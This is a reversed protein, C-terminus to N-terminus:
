RVIIRGKMGFTSHLTHTCKLPYQGAAPVLEIRVTSRKPIEVKGGQVLAASAPAIRAAAFFAPASFNHGGSSNNRLQLVTPSNARLQLQAPTFSFNALDVTAVAPQAADATGVLEGGYTLLGGMIAALLAKLM